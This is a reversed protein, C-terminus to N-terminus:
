TDEFGFLFLLYKLGDIVMKKVIGVVLLYIVYSMFVGIVRCFVIRGNDCYIWLM